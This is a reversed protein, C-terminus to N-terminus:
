RNVTTTRPLAALQRDCVLLVDLGVPYGRCIRQRAEWFDEPLGDVALRRQGNIGPGRLRGGAGPRLAAVQVILTAATEPAEDTGPFFQSLPLAQPADTILAFVAQGPDRSFPCGCHFRLWSLAGSSPPLDSWVPTDHDLLTLGVAATAPNLDDPFPTVDSPLELIRGPHTMAELVQRFVRQADMAPNHFGPTVVAAAGTTM